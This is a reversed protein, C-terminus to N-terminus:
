GYAAPDGVKLLLKADPQDFARCATEPEGINPRFDKFVGLARGLNAVRNVANSRIM